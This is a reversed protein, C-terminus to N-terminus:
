PADETRDVTVTISYDVSGVKFNKLCNPCYDVFGDTLAGDTHADQVSVSEGCWPCPVAIEDGVTSTDEDGM